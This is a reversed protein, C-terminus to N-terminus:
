FPIEDDLPAQADISQQVQDAKPQKQKRDVQKSDHQDLVEQVLVSWVAVSNEDSLRCDKFILLRSAGLRGTFYRNGNKSTKEYVRTLKTMPIKEFSM